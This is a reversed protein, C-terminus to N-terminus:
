NKNVQSTSPLKSSLVACNMTLPQQKIVSIFLCDTGTNPIWRFRIHIRIRKLTQIQLWIKVNIRIWSQTQLHEPDIQSLFNPDQTLSGEQISISGSGKLHTSKFGAKSMSGSGVRLKFTNRIQRLYPIQIQTPSDESLFIFGSGKLPKFKFGTKPM